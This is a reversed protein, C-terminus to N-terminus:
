PEYGPFIPGREDFPNSGDPGKPKDFYNQDFMNEHLIGLHMKVANKVVAFRHHHSKSKFVIKGAKM